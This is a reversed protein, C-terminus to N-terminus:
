CPKKMEGTHSHIPEAMASAQEHSYGARKLEDRAANQKGKHTVIVPATPAQPATPPTPPTPGGPPMDTPQIM